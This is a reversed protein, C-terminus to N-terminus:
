PADTTHWVWIDLLRGDKDFGWYASTTSVMPLLSSRETKITAWVSRVGVVKGTDQDLYGATDSRNCQFGKARCLNLVQEVSSGKPTARLLEDREGPTCGAAMVAFFLALVSWWSLNM